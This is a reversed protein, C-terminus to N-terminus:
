YPEVQETFVTLTSSSGVSSGATIKLQLSTIGDMKYWDEPDQPNGFPLIITGFPAGGSVHFQGLGGANGKITVTGGAGATQTFYLATGGQGVGAAITEYAAACPFAVGSTDVTGVLHESIKGYRSMLYKMYHSIRQDFPIKQDNNETLKVQNYQEYPMKGTYASEIFLSRLVRDRPLQIDEIASSVLSYNYHTKALLFGVPSVAKGDFVDADVDLIVADASSGGAGVDITVRLQLQQFRAPDLAYMPDGIFRGFPIILPTTGYVDNEYNVVNEPSKGFHYFMRAQIEKASLSHLIRSGDILEVKSVSACPHAAPTGSSNLSKVELYLASIINILNVDIVKVQDSTFTQADLIKALRMNM